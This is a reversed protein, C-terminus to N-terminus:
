IERLYITASIQMKDDPRQPIEYDERNYKLVKGDPSLLRFTIDESMNFTKKVSNLANLRIFNEDVYGVVCKFTVFEMNPNNSEYNTQNRKSGSYFELLLYSWDVINKKSYIQNNLSLNPVILNVLSMDYNKDQNKGPKICKVGDETFKHFVVYFDSMNGEYAIEIDKVIIFNKSKKIITHTGEEISVVYDINNEDIFSLLSENETKLSTGINDINVIMGKGTGLVDYSGTRYGSGPNIIQLSFINIICDNNGGKITVNESMDYGEGENQLTVKCVARSSIDPVKRMIGKHPFTECIINRANSIFNRNENSREIKMDFPNPYLKRDRYTSDIDIYTETM